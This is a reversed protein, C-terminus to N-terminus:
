WSRGSHSAVADSRGVTKLHFTYTPGDSSFQIRDGDRLRHRQVREGDVYTGNMSGRDEITWIGRDCVFRAHDTSVSAHAIALDVSNGADKRGVTTCRGAIRRVDSGVESLLTAEEMNVTDAGACLTNGAADPREPDTWRRTAGLKTEGELHIRPPVVPEAVQPVPVQVADAKPTSAPPVGGAALTPRGDVAFGSQVVTVTMDGPVDYGLKSARRGVETALDVTVRDLGGDIEGDLRWHDAPSVQVVIKRKMYRKGAVSVSVERLATVVIRRQLALLDLHRPPFLCPMLHTEVTQGIGEVARRAANVVTPLVIFLTVVVTVAILGVVVGVPGIFGVVGYSTM